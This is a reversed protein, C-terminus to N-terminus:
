WLVSPTYGGTGRRDGTGCMAILLVVWSSVMVMRSGRGAAWGVGGSGVEGMLGSGGYGVTIM